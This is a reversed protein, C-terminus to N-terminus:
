NDCLLKLAKPYIDYYHNNDYFIINTLVLIFSM